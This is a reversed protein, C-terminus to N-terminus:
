KQTQMCRAGQCNRPKDLWDRTASREDDVDKQYRCIWTPVHTGTLMERDCIMREKGTRGVDNANVALGGMADYHTAAVVIDGWDSHGVYLPHAPDGHEQLAAIRAARDNACGFLFLLAGLAILKTMKAELGATYRFSAGSGVLGKALQLSFDLRRNADRVLSELEARPQDIDPGDITM